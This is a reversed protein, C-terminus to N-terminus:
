NTILPAFCLCLGDDSTVTDFALYGNELLASVKKTDKLLVQQTTCFDISDCPFVAKAFIYHVVLKELGRLKLLRYGCRLIHSVDDAKKFPVCHVIYRFGQRFAQMQATNLYATYITRVVPAFETEAFYKKIKEEDLAVYGVALCDQPLTIFDALYDYSRDQRYFSSDLPFFCCCAVLSDKVFAGWFEGQLFVNEVFRSDVPNYFLSNYSSYCRVIDQVDWKFLRRMIIRTGTLLHEKNM